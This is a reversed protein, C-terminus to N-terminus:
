EPRLTIAALRSLLWAFWRLLAESPPILSTEVVDSCGTAAPTFVKTSKSSESGFEPESRPKWQNRHALRLGQNDVFILATNQGHQAVFSAKRLESDAHIRLWVTSGVRESMTLPHRLRRNWMLDPSFPCESSPKATRFTLLVKQLFSQDM